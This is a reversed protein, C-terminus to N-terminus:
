NLMFLCLGPHVQPVEPGPAGRDRAAADAVDVSDWGRQWETEGTEGGPRASGQQEASGAAAPPSPATRRSCGPTQLAQPRQHLRQGLVGATAAGDGVRAVM